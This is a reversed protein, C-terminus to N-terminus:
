PLWGGCFCGVAFGLWGSFVVRHVPLAFFGSLVFALPVLGSFGVQCDPFPQCFVLVSLRSALWFWVWVWVWVVSVKVAVVAYSVGALSLHSRFSLM